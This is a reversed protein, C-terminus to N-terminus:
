YVNSHLIYREEKEIFPSRHFFIQRSRRGNSSNQTLKTQNEIRTRGIVSRSTVGTYSNGRQRINARKFFTDYIAYLSPAGPSKYWAARPSCCGNGKKKAAKRESRRWSGFVGKGSFLPMELSIYFQYFGCSRRRPWLDGAIGLSFKEM